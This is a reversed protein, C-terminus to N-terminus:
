LIVTVIANAVIPILFRLLDIVLQNPTFTQKRWGLEGITEEADRRIKTKHINFEEIKNPQMLETAAIISKQHAEADMSSIHYHFDFLHNLPWNLLYILGSGLAAWSVQPITNLAIAIAAIFAGLCLAPYVLTRWHRLARWVSVKVVELREFPAIYGFIYMLDEKTLAMVYGWYYSWIACGLLGTGAVGVVRNLTLAWVLLLLLSTIVAVIGAWYMLRAVQLRKM